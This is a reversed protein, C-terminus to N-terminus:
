PSILSKYWKLNIRLFNLFIKLLINQKHLNILENKLLFQRFFPRSNKKLKKLLMQIKTQRFLILNKKKPIKKKKKPIKKKKKKLLFFNEYFLLQKKSIRHM